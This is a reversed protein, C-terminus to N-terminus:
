CYFEDEDEEQAIHGNLINIIDQPNYNGEECYKIACQIRCSLDKTLDLLQERSMNNMERERENVIYNYYLYGGILL